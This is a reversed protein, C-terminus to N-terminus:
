TAAKPLKKPSASPGWGDNILPTPGGVAGVCHGGWSQTTSYFSWRFPDSAQRFVSWFDRQVAIQIPFHIPFRDRECQIKPAKEEAVWETGNRHFDRFQLQNSKFASLIWLVLPTYSYISIISRNIISWLCLYISIITYTGMRVLLFEFDFPQFTKTKQWFGPSTEMTEEINTVEVSRRLCPYLAVGGGPHHPSGDPLCVLLLYAEGPTFEQSRDRRHGATTDM